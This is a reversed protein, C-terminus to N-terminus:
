RSKTLSFLTQLFAMSSGIYHGLQSNKHLLSLQHFKTTNLLLVIHTIYNKLLIHPKNITEEIQNLTQTYFISIINNSGTQMNRVILYGCNNM